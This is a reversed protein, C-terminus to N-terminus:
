YIEVLNGFIVETKSIKQFVVWGRAQPIMFIGTFGDAARQNGGGRGRLLDARASFGAPPPFLLFITHVMFFSHEGIKRVTGPQVAERLLAHRILRFNELIVLQRRVLRFLALLEEAVDEALRLFSKEADLRRKEAVVAVIDLDARVEERVIVEDHEVDALDLDTVVEHGTRVDHKAGGPVREVRLGTVAAILVADVDRDAVVDPDAAVDANQRAHGDSVVDDDAGTGDDRLVDRVVHERDSIGAVDNALDGLGVAVEVEFVPFEVDFIILSARPCRGIQARAGDSARAAAITGFLTGDDNLRRARCRFRLARKRCFSARGRNTCLRFRQIFDIGNKTYYIQLFSRSM